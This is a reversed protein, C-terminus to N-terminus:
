PTPEKLCHVVARFIYDKAQQDRPLADFPVICPHTKKEADKADGYTWGAALKDAMWADHQASDPADPNAKAFAVGAIASERQWPEAADWTKQSMDGHAECLGKNAEHCIRAIQENTM